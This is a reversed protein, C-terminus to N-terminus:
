DKLNEIKQKLLLKTNENKAIVVTPNKETTYYVNFYNNKEVFEDVAQVVGPHRKGYDHALIVGNEKTLQQAIELDRLCGKYSHDADVYIWDLTQEDVFEGLASTFDRIIKVNDLHWFKKVVSRYRATQRKDNTMLGDKYGLDIERWVDVLYLKSPEIKEILIESFDGGCVGLEAGISKKDLIDLLKIRNM